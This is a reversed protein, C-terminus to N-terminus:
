YKEHAYSNIRMYLPIIVLVILLSKIKYSKNLIRCMYVHTVCEMAVIAVDKAMEVCYVFTVFLCQMGASATSMYADSPLLLM